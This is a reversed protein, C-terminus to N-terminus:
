IPLNCKNCLSEFTEHLQCKIIRSEGNTAMFRECGM